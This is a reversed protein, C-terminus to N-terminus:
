RRGEAMEREDDLTRTMIRPEPPRGEAWDDKDVYDMWVLQPRPGDTWAVATQIHWRLMDSDLLDFDIELGDRVKEKRRSMVPEQLPFQGSIRHARRPRPSSGHGQPPCAREDPLALFRPGNTRNRAGAPGRARRKRALSRQM